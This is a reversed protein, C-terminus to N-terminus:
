CYSKGTLDGAPDLVSWWFYNNSYFVIFIKYIWTWGKCVIIMQQMFLVEHHHHHYTCNVWGEGMVFLFLTDAVLLIGLQCGNVAVLQSATGFDCLSLNCLAISEVNVILWTVIVPASVSSMAKPSTCIGRLALM